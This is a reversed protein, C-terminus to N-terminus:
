ADKWTVFCAAQARFHLKASARRLIHAHRRSALVRERWTRWSAGLARSRFAAVARLM